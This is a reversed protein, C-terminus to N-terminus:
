KEIWNECIAHIDVEDITDGLIGKHRCLWYCCYTSLMEECCLCTVCSVDSLLKLAKNVLM